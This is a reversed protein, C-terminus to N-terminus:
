MNGNLYPIAPYDNLSTLTAIITISTFLIAFLIGLGLKPRKYLPILILPSIFYFQLDVASYWSHSLCMNQTDVFNHIHLVNLYWNKKCWSDYMTLSELWVPGEGLTRLINASFLITILMLPAMRLYRYLYFYILNLKGGTKKM